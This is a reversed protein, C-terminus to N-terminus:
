MHCASNGVVITKLILDVPLVLLYLLFPVGEFVMEITRTRMRLYSHAVRLEEKLKMLYMEGVIEVAVIVMRLMLEKKLVYPCMKKMVVNLYSITQILLFYSKLVLGQLLYVLIMKRM